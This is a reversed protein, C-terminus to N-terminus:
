CRCKRVSEAFQVFYEADCFNPVQEIQVWIASLLKSPLGFRESWKEIMATEDLSRCQNSSHSWRSADVSIGAFGLTPGNRASSSEVWKRGRSSLTKGFGAADFGLCQDLERRLM